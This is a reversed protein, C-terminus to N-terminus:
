SYEVLSSRKFLSTRQNNWPSGGILEISTEPDGVEKLSLSKGELERYNKKVNNLVQRVIDASQEEYQRRIIVMDRNSGFNVITSFVVSIKESDIIRMKVSMSATMPTSSRGWTTDLVQGLSNIDIEM